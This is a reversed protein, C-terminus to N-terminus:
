AKHLRRPVVVIGDEDAYLWDAPRIWVGQVLVPVNTQGPQQRVTPLPVHALARIGVQAARLEALDRVCGDIVLGAWGQQAASLALNGGLLARRLSGGGDVVLVRGQGAREVAQKVPTNDEHCKVTVVEGCFRPLGGYDRFLPALVRFDGSLDDKHADCFDCTSFEVTATSTM